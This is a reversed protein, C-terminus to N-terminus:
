WRVAALEAAEKAQALPQAIRGRLGEVVAAPASEPSGAQFPPDPDYEMVLQATQAAAEGRMKAAIRLGFDIGSTVGGGTIRNRDEVYRADVREASLLPLVERFAWHTTARYGRLLGAAGLVLSGTCVSTVYSAQEARAALFDLVEGDKMVAITGAVGGPVFLIELEEPCTDFTATPSLTIGSDTTIPDLTKWVLHIKTDELISFATQPGILDLATFGPYILMAIHQM